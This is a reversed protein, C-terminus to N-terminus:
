TPMCELVKILVGFIEGMFLPQKLLNLSGVSGFRGTKVLYELNDRAYIKLLPLM